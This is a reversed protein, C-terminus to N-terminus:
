GQAITEDHLRVDDFTGLANERMIVRLTKVYDEGRESYRILAGALRHGDLEGASARLDERLDRFQEYAHHSNLNLAYASVTEYLNEYSRVRFKGPSKPSLPAIGRDNAGTHQGFLANGDRAFRSTGWGSEEAAQALALSPLIIDIRRSLEAIEGSEVAYLAYQEELWIRDAVELSAGRAMQKAIGSLRTRDAALDENVRLVVPLVAKIFLQKREKVSELADLDPPLSAVYLRPVVDEGRRVDELDYGGEDLYLVLAEASRLQAHREGDAGLVFVPENGLKNANSAGISDAFARVLFGTTELSHALWNGAERARYQSSLSAMDPSGAGPAIAALDAYLPSNANFGDTDGLPAGFGAADVSADFASTDLASTDLGLIGDGRNPGFASDPDFLVAGYLGASLLGLAFIASGRGFRAFSRVRGVGSMGIVRGMFGLGTASKIAAAVGHACAAGPITAVGGGFNYM